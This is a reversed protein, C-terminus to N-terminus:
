FIHSVIKLPVSMNDLPFLKNIFQNMELFRPNVLFIRPEARKGKVIQEIIGVKVKLYLHIKFRLVLFIFSLRLIATFNSTLM